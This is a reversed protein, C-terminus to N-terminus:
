SAKSESRMWKKLKKILEKGPTALVSDLVLVNEQQARKVLEEDAPHTSMLCARATIGGLQRRVQELKYFDGVELARSKVEVVHLCNDFLFMGDFENKVHVSKQQVKINVVPVGKPLVATLIGRCYEEFWVGNVFMKDIVDANVVVAGEAGTQIWKHTMLWSLLDMFSTQVRMPEKSLSEPLHNQSLCANLVRVVDAADKYSLLKRVFEIKDRNAPAKTEQMKNIEYGHWSLYDSILGPPLQMSEKHRNPEFVSKEFVEAVSTNVDLYFFPLRRMACVMFAAIAMPKTGGTINVIQHGSNDIITELVKRVGDIDNENEIDVIRVSCKGRLVRNVARSLAEDQKEKHMQPSVLMIVEKPRTGPNVIPIANADIGRSVMCIQTTYKSWDM